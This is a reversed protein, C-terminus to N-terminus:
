VVLYKQSRMVDGFWSYEDVTYPSVSLSSQLVLVHKCDGCEPDRSLTYEFKLVMLCLEMARNMLVLILLM